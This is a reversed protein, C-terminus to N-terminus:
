IGAGADLFRPTIPATRTPRHRYALPFPEAPDPPTLQFSFLREIDLWFTHLLASRVGFRSM